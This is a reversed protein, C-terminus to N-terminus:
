GKEKIAFNAIEHDIIEMNLQTLQDHLIDRIDTLVEILLDLQHAKRSRDEDKWNATNILDYHIEKKTRM